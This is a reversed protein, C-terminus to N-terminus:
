TAGFGAIETIGVNSSTMQVKKFEFVVRLHAGYRGLLHVISFNQPLDRMLPGSHSGESGPLARQLAESTKTAKRSGERGKAAGRWRQPRVRGKM